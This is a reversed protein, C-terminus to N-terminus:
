YGRTAWHGPHAARVRALAAEREPPDLLRAELVLAPVFDPRAELVLRNCSRAEDRDGLRLAVEGLYQALMVPVTGHRQRYRDFAGVLAARAVEPHDSGYAHYFWLRYALDRDALDVEARFRDLLDNYTRLYPSRGEDLGEDRDFMALQAELARSFLNGRTGTAGDFVWYPVFVRDTLELDLSGDGDTDLIVAGRTGTFGIGVVRGGCELLRFGVGSSHNFGVSSISVEGGKWGNGLATEFTTYGVAAFARELPGLDDGVGPVGQAGLGGLVVLAGFCAMVFARM